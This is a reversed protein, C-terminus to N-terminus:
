ALPRDDNLSFRDHFQVIRQVVPDTADGGITALLRCTAYQKSREAYQQEWQRQVREHRADHFPFRASPVHLGCRWPKPTLRARYCGQRRCLNIYVRDTELSRLLVDRQDDLPGHQAEVFIVRYGAATQYLRLAHAPREAQWARLRDPMAELQPTARGFIRQFLSPKVVPRDIDAFMVQRTNLVLAGYRNRTIAAIPTTEHYLTDILEERAPDVGYGYEDTASRGRLAYEVARKARALAMERAAADDGNSWGYASRTILRGDPGAGAYQERVWHTPFEM